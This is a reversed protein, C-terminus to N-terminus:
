LESPAPPPIPRESIRLVGQSVLTALLNAFEDETTQPKILGGVKAKELHERWTKVGDCEAIVAALWKSCRMESAFPEKSEVGFAEPSFRGEHLRHLVHLETGPAISPHSDLLFGVAAPDHSETEWDLLWAQHEPRFGAGKM